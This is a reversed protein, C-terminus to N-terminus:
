AKGNDGEAQRGLLRSGFYGIAINQSIRIIRNQVLFKGALTQCTAIGFGSQRRDFTHQHGLQGIQACPKEAGFHQSSQAGIQLGVLLEHIVCVITAIQQSLAEIGVIPGTASAILQQGLVALNVGHHFVAVFVDKTKPSDSSSVFIGLLTAQVAVEEHRGLEVLGQQRRARRRGVAVRGGVWVRALVGRSAIVQEDGVFLIHFGPLRLDGIALDLSGM